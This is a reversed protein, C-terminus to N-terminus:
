QGVEVYSPSSVACACPTGHPILSGVAISPSIYVFIIEVDSTFHGENSLTKWAVQTAQLAHAPVSGGANSPSM